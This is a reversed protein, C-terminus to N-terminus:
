RRSLGADIAPGGAGTLPLTPADAAALPAARAFALFWKAVGAGRHLM